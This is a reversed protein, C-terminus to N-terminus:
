ESFVLFNKLIVENGLVVQKFCANFYFFSVPLSLNLFCISSCMIGNHLYYIWYLYFTFFNSTMLFQVVLLPFAQSFCLSHPTFYLINFFNSFFSIDTSSWALGVLFFNVLRLYFIWYILYFINEFMCYLFIERFLAPPISFPM